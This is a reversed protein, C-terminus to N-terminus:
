FKYSYQICVILDFVEDVCNWYDPWISDRPVDNQAFVKNFHGRIVKDIGEKSVQVVGDKDKLPFDINTVAKTNRRVQFVKSQPRDSKIIKNIKSESEHMVNEAIKDSILKQVRSIQCGRMPNDLVNKRIWKEEDLLCKLEEDVGSITHKNKKVVHFSKKMALDWRHMLKTVDANVDVTEAGFM